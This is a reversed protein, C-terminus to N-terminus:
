AGLGLRLHLLDEPRRLFLFARLAQCAFQFRSSRWRLEIYVVASVM